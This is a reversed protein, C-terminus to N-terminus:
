VPLSLGIYKDFFFNFKETHITPVIISDFDLEKDYQFQPILSNWNVITLTFQTEKYVEVKLFLDM